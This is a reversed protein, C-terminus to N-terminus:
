WEALLSLLEQSFYVIRGQTVCHCPLRPTNWQFVGYPLEVFKAKEQSDM